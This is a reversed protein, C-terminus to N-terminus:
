LIMFLLAFQPSTHEQITYIPSTGKQKLDELFKNDMDDVDAKKDVNDDVDTSTVEEEASNKKSLSKRRAANCINNSRGGGGRLMRQFPPPSQL